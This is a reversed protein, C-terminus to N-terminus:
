HCDKTDIADTVHTSGSCPISSAADFMSLSVSEFLAHYLQSIFHVSFLFWKVHYLDIISYEEGLLRSFVKSAAMNAVLPLVNIVDIAQSRLGRRCIAAASQPASRWRRWPWSSNEMVKIELQSLRGYVYTQLGKHEAGNHRKETM